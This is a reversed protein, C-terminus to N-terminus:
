EGIAIREFRSIQINEGLSAIAETLLTQITKDPDKIYEQELLCVEGYWKDLRGTIIRELIHDPKNANKPDNKLQEIYITKEKEVDESPINERSVYLPNAAVVHMALDRALGQFQETAAVFDTECNVAVMGAKKSGQHIYTGVLGENTTRDAKKAASALGKKRLAEIAQEFNGETQQLVKKCDLIGAGTAQRLEKVMATTIEAM